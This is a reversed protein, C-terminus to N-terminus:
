ALGGGLHSLIPKAWPTGLVQMSNLVFTLAFKQDLKIEVTKSGMCAHM